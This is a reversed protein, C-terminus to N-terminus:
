ITLGFREEEYLRTFIDEFKADVNKRKVKFTPTMEDEDVSLERDLLYVKKVTEVRSLSGNARKIGAVVRNQVDELESVTAMLTDLGDPRSLPNALLEALIRDGETRTVLDRSAALEVAEAPGLTVLAVLYKRRDGHVHAQSILPDSAKIENEINAPSINKGGATIIIHKKRDRIYLYGDDDIEGIDGTHLWGDIITQATAEENKYYGQFVLPGRLLVEGDDAIRQETRPSPRGVSGLRVQGQCNLHTVSTAETMGYGEYIRLGAAWFFELIEYAIPAAGTIIYRVRGGFVDRIKRFVLRDALRYQVKLAMPVPEGNMWKKVVQRGVSEAWRFIRRRAPTAQEVQNMMKAYAKEFIRPVGGFVTPRTEQVEEIVKPISSAFYNPIGSSIRNYFGFFREAAHAMPLFALTIDSTGLASWPTIDALNDLVNQHSIMAGKPHGTTGSTYVIIATSKPDIAAQREGLAADDPPTALVDRWAAPGADNTDDGTPPDWIVIQELKPMAAREAVVSALVESNEVVIVKAESHDVVYALQPPALTPYAGLTVCGALQGGIDAIAWEIRTSGVICIKDGIGINHAVLWSAFARCQADADRWSLPAWADNRKSFYAPAEGGRDVQRRFMDALTRSQEALSIAPESLQWSPDLLSAAPGATGNKPM